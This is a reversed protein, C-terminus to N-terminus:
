MEKPSLGMQHGPVRLAFGQFRKWVVAPSPRVSAAPAASSEM